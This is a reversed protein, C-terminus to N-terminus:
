KSPWFDRLQKQVKNTAQYHKLGECAQLVTEVMDSVPMQRQTYPSSLTSVSLSQFFLALDDLKLLLRGAVPEQM